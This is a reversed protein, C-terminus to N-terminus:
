GMRKRMSAYGTVPRDEEVMEWTRAYGALDVPHDRRYGGLSRALKDCAMIRAWMSVPLPERLYSSLLANLMGITVGHHELPHRYARQRDGDVLRAAEELVTEKM